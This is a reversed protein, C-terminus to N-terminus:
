VEYGFIFGYLVFDTVQSRIVIDYGEPIVLPPNFTMTVMEGDNQERRPRFITYQTTDNEDRM